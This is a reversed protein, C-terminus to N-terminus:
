TDILSNPSEIEGGSCRDVNRAGSACANPDVNMLTTTRGFTSSKISRGSIVPLGGMLMSFKMTANHMPANIKTM